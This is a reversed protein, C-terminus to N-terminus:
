YLKVLCVDMPVVWIASGLSFTVHCNETEERLGPGRELQKGEGKAAPVSSM